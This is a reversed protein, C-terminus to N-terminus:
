NQSFEELSKRLMLKLTKKGSTTKFYKERRLADEKNLYYEFFILKLPRRPASSKSNGNIHEKVRRKFDSTYGIYMKSDRLSYLVYVCYPLQNQNMAYIFFPSFM